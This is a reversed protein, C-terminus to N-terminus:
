YRFNTYANYIASGISYGVYFSATLMALAVSQPAMMTVPTIGGSVAEIEDTTLERM